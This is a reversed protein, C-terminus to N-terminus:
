TLFYTMAGHMDQFGFQEYLPRGMATANLTVRQCGIQKAEELIRHFLEKAIGRRRYEPITFMNMIYAIKGDLYQFAPPVTYTVLGSTAIIKEGDAALWALFSGDLIAKEFYTKSLKILQKREDPSRANDIEILCMDRIEALAAADSSLAKRYVIM